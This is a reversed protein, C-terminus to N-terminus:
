KSWEPEHWEGEGMEERVRAATIANSVDEREFGDDLLEQAIDEWPTDFSRRWMAVRVMKAFEGTLHDQSMMPTLAERIMNRIKGVRTRIVKNNSM